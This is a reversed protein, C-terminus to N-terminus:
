LPLPLFIDEIKLKPNIKVEIKSFIKRKRTKHTRKKDL